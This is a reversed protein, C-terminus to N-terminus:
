AIETFLNGGSSEQAQNYLSIDADFICITKNLM